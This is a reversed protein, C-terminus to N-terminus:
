KNIQKQQITIQKQVSFDLLDDIQQKKQYGIRHMYLHRSIIDKLLYIATHNKDDDFEKHLLRLRDIDLEKKHWTHISLNILKSATTNTKNNVEDAIVVLKDYGLSDVIKHLWGFIVGYSFRVVLRQSILKAQEKSLEKNKEKAIKLLGEQIFNNLGDLDNSILDMFCKLLRLGANQGEEFLEILKDKKFTGYQNKMIQGIIEISKASKRIEILLLNDKDDKISEETKEVNLREKDKAKLQNKRVEAVSHNKVPTQLKELKDISDSIFKTEQKKLAAASYSEFSSMAVLLIDDLLKTNKTHHTLFIIINANDKKHINSTLESIHKYINADDIHDAIYKAVFYYYIYIHQFSYRNNKNILIKAKQINTIINEDFIYDKNYAILFQKLEDESLNKNNKNFMFYALETLLNFYKDMDNPKVNIRYLRMTVIAHYCHGYSTEHINQTAGGAEVIDFVSIVFIPYSPVLNSGIVTNIHKTDKDLRAIQETNDVDFETDEDNAICKKILEDRKKYGFSKIAYGNFSNFFNHETSKDSLNSLEDIFIIAYKFNNKISQIFNAYNSNNATREDIDDIILIKKEKNLPQYNGTSDYQKQYAKNVIKNIDVKGVINKGNILIPYFGIEVYHLYLMNCLSTKGSQEEGDILIYKHEFNTIDELKQSDIENDELTQNSKNIELIDPYVFLKDLTCDTVPNNLLEDKFDTKLIPMIQDKIKEVQKKIKTYVDQWAMDKDDWTSVAKGNEPVAQINSIGKIDQWACERLIVPIFIKGQQKLELARQVEKKCATSAIFDPSFLLLIIDASSINDEIEKEWDDGALIKRDHWEDILNNDRLTALHKELEKRYEEDEHSYSYFLKIKM